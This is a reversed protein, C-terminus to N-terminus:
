ASIELVTQLKNAHYTVYLKQNQTISFVVSVNQAKALNSMVKSMAMMKLLLGLPEKKCHTGWSCLVM